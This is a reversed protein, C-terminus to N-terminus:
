QSPTNSVSFSTAEHWGCEAPRSVSTQLQMFRVFAKCKWQCYFVANAEKGITHKVTKLTDQVHKTCVFKWSVTFSIAAKRVTPFRQGIRFSEANEMAQLQQDDEVSSCFEHQLRGFMEWRFVCDVPRENIQLNCEILPDVLQFGHVNVSASFLYEAANTKWGKRKLLWSISSLTYSFCNWHWSLFRPVFRRIQCCSVAVPSLTQIATQDVWRRRGMRCRTLREYVVLFLPAQVQRKAALCFTPTPHPAFIVVVILRCHSASRPENSITVKLVLM